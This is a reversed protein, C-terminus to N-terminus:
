ECTKGRQRLPFPLDKGDLRGGDADFQTAKGGDLDRQFSGMAVDVDEKNPNFGYSYYLGTAPDRHILYSIMGMVKGDEEIKFASVGDVTYLEM